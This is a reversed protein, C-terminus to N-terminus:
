TVMSSEYVCNGDNSKQKGWHYLLCNACKEMFELGKKTTKLKDGSIELLGKELLMTFYQKSQMYSLGVDRMIETKRKGHIAKKLIAFTIDHRDRNVM